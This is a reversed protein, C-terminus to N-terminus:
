KVQSQGEGAQLVGTDADRRVVHGLDNLPEM